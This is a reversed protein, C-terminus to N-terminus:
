RYVCWRPAAPAPAGWLALSHWGCGLHTALLPGEPQLNIAAIAVAGSAFVGWTVVTPLGLAPTIRDSLANTVAAGDLLSKGCFRNDSGSCWRSGVCGDWGVNQVGAEDVNSRVLVAAAVHWAAVCSRGASCFSWSHCCYAPGPCRAGVSACTSTSSAVSTCAPLAAAYAAAAAPKGLHTGPLMWLCRCALCWVVGCWVVGCWVVGCWVVGCWVVGCWVV